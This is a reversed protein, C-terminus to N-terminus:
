RGFVEHWREVFTDANERTLERMRRREVPSLGYSLRAARARAVAKALGDDKRVHVHPPEQGENSFFFGSFALGLAVASPL